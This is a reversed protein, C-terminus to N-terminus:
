RRELSLTKLYAYVGRLEDLSLGALSVGLATGFRATLAELESIWLSDM